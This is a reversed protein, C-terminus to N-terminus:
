LGGPQVEAKEIFFIQAYRSNTLTKAAAAGDVTTLVLLLMPHTKASIESFQGTLVRELAQPFSLDLASQLIIGHARRITALDYM